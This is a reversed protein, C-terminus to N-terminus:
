YNNPLFLNKNVEEETVNIYFHQYPGPINLLWHAAWTHQDSTVTPNMDLIVHMGRDHLERVMEQFDEIRGIHPDINAFDIVHEYELPYDLASFISNLRVIDVSLNQIYDLREILGKMDGFGDGDTDQFSAPFIEYIVAGQWWQSTAPCNRSHAYYLGVIGCASILLVISLSFLLCALSSFPWYRKTHIYPDQTTDQPAGLPRHQIHSHPDHSTQKKSPSSKLTPLKAKNKHCKPSQDMQEQDQLLHTSSEPEVGVDSDEDASSAAFPEKLPFVNSSPDSKSNKMSKQHNPSIHNLFPQVEEETEELACSEKEESMGYNHHGNMIITCNDSIPKPDPLEILVESKIKRYSADHVINNLATM